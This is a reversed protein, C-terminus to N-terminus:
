SLCSYSTPGLCARHDVMESMQELICPTKLEFGELTVQSKKKGLLMQVAYLVRHKGCMLTDNTSVLIVYM